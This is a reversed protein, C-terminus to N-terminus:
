VAMSAGSAPRQARLKLAFTLAVVVVPLAVVSWIVPELAGLRGAAWGLGFPLVAAVLFGVGNALASVAPIARTERYGTIFTLSITLLAGQCAGAVLAGAWVLWTAGPLGNFCLLALAGVIIVTFVVLVGRWFRTEIVRAGLIAGPLSALSFVSLVLGSASADQGQAQLWSPVWTMLAFFLASQAGMHACILWVEGRRAVQRIGLSDPADDPRLAEATREEAHAIRWGILWWVLGLLNLVIWVNIAVQWAFGAGILPMTAGAGLSAGVSLGASFLGLYRNARRPYFERIAVPVVANGIAAGIGIVVTGGFLGWWTPSFRIAAGALLLVVLLTVTLEIDFRRLLAPAAFAFLGFCLLPLTSTLAAAAADLGLAQQIVPLAPAVSSITVRLLASILVLQVIARLWIPPQHTPSELGSM